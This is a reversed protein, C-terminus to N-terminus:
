IKNINFKMIYNEYNSNIYRQMYNFITVKYDYYTCNYIINSYM